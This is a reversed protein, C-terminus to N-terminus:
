FQDESISDTRKMKFFLVASCLVMALALSGFSCFVTLNSGSPQSLRSAAAALSASPNQTGTPINESSDKDPKAGSTHIPFEEGTDPVTDTKPSKPVNASTNIVDQSSPTSGGQDQSQGPGPSPEPTPVPSPEPTPVPTPKPNMDENLAPIVAAFGEGKEKEKVSQAIFYVQLTSDANMTDYQFECSYQDTGGPLTIEKGDVLLRDIMYGSDAKILFAKVKDEENTLYLGSAGITQSDISTTVNGGLTKTEVEILKNAFDSPAGKDVVAVTFPSFSDALIILGKPTIKCVLEEPVYKGDVLKYHYAKFEVNAHDQYHFGEPYPLAITVNYKASSKLKAAMGQCSLSLDYTASSNITGPNLQSDALSGLLADQTEQGPVTAMLRIDLASKRGPSDYDFIDLEDNVVLTPLAVVFADAVSGQAVYCPCPVNMPYTTAIPIPNPAKNSKQGACNELQLTYKNVYGQFTDDPTFDFEVITSPNTVKGITFSSERLTLNEVQYKIHPETTSVNITIEKDPDVKVLKEDFEVVYHQRSPKIALGLMPSSKRIFPPVVYSSFYPTYLKETLALHYQPESLDIDYAALDGSMERTVSFQIFCKRFIRMISEGEITPIAFASLQYWPGVDISEEGPVPSTRTSGDSPLTRGSPASANGSITNDTAINGSVTNGSVTDSILVDSEQNLPYLAVPVAGYLAAAQADSDGSITYMVRAAINFGQKEATFLDMGNYTIHFDTFNDGGSDTGPKSTVVLGRDSDSNTDFYDQTMRVIYDMDSLEPYQFERGIPTLRSSAYHNTSMLASGRMLYTDKVVNQGVPDDWTADTAYWYDGAKIYNWMHEENIGLSNEAIGTVLVTPIGFDDLIWKLTRAYGECNAYGGVLTGYIGHVDTLTESPYSYQVKQLLMLHAKTVIESAREQYEDQKLALSEKIDSIIEQKKAWAAALAEDVQQANTFSSRYYDANTGNSLYAVYINDKVGVRFTLKAFDVYFLDCHDQSFADRAALFDAALTQNGGAYESLRAQTLSETVDYSGTGTKLSGDEYMSKLGNYFILQSSTLQDKFYSGASYTTQASADMPLLTIPLFLCLALILATIRKNM